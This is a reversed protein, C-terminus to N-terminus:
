IHILSLTLAAGHSCGFRREGTGVDYVAVHEGAAVALSAGDRGMWVATIPEAMVIRRVMHHTRTDWVCCVLGGAAALLRGGYSLCTVRELRPRRWHLTRRAVSADEVSRRPAAVLPRTMAPAPLFTSM